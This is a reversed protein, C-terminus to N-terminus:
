ILTKDNEKNHFITRYKNIKVLTKKYSTDYLYSEIRHVNYYKCFYAYIENLTKIIITTYKVFDVETFYTYNLYHVNEHRTKFIYDFVDLRTKKLYTNKNLILDLDINFCKKFTNIISTINQFSYGTSVKQYKDIEGNKYLKKAYSPISTNREIQVFDINNISKLINIFTDRFYTELISVLYISLLNVSFSEQNFITLGGFLKNLRKQSEDLPKVCPIFYLMETFQNHLKEFPFALGNEIGQTTDNIEFLKNVGNDTTFDRKLENSLYLLTDNHLDLDFSTCSAWNRGWIYYKKYATSVGFLTGEKYKFNDDIYKRYSFLQFANRKDLVKKFGLNVLLDEVEKIEEKNIEISSDFGM